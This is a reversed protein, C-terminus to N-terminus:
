ALGSREGGKVAADGPRRRSFSASGPLPHSFPPASVHLMLELMRGPGEKEEETVGGRKV